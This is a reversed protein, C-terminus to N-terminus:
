CQVAGIGTRSSPFRAIKPEPTERFSKARAYGAQIWALIGGLMNYVKTFNHEVLIGCAIPSRSGGYCFVIIEHDENGVLEGIRAELQYVPILVAGYLHGLNYESQNRVDLIVLNSSDGHKIIRYATDVSVDTYPTYEQAKVVSSFAVCSALLL